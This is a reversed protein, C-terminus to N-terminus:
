IEQGAPSKQDSLSTEPVPKAIVVLRKSITGPPWCTQLVLQNEEPYSYMYELAKPSVVKKEEVLYAFYEGDFFVIIEDGPELYQLPYFVANYQNINWPYNTSHGFIYTTGKRNPLATGEAHAVGTKLAKDYEEKNLPDVSAAVVTNVGIKPIVLSFSWDDPPQIGRQELWSIQGFKSQAEVQLVKPESKNLLSHTRYKVEAFAVPGTVLLFGGLGAGLLFTGLKGYFHNKNRPLAPVIADGFAGPFNADYIVTWKGVQYPVGTAEM